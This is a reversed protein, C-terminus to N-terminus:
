CRWTSCGRHRRARAKLRGYRTTTCTQTDYLLRGIRTSKGDDVSGATSFRLLDQTREQMLYETVGFEGAAFNHTPEPVHSLLPNFEAVGENWVEPEHAAAGNAAHANSKLSMQVLDNTSTPM